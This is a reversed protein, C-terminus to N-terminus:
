ETVVGCTMSGLLENGKAYFGLVSEKRSHSSDLGYGGNM